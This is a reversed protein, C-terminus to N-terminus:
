FKESFSSKGYDYIEEIICLPVYLSLSLSLSLSLYLSLSLSFNVYHIEFQSGIIEANRALTGSLIWVVPMPLWRNRPVVRSKWCSWPEFPSNATWRGVIKTLRRTGKPGSTILVAQRDSDDASARERIENLPWNGLRVRLLIKRLM